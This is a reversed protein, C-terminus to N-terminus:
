TNCNCDHRLQQQTWWALLLAPFVQMCQWSLAPTTVRVQARYKAIVVINEELAQKYEPDKDGEQYAEKLEVNSQVLHAVANKLRDLEIELLSHQAAYQKTM